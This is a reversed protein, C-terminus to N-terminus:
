RAYKDVETTVNIYHPHNSCSNFGTFGYCVTVRIQYVHNSILGVIRTSAEPTYFSKIMPKDKFRVQIQINYVIYNEVIKMQNKGPRFTLMIEKSKAVPDISLKPYNNTVIFFLIRSQPGTENGRKIAITLHYERMRLVFLSSPSSKFVKQETSHTPIDLNLLFDFSVPIEETPHSLQSNLYEDYDNSFYTVVYSTDANEPLCESSWKFDVTDSIDNTNIKKVQFDPM